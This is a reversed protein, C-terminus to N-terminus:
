HVGILHKRPCKNYNALRVTCKCISSQSLVVNRYICRRPGQTRRVMCLEPSVFKFLPLRYNANMGLIGSVDYRRFRRIFYKKAGRIYKEVVFFFSKMVALHMVTGWFVESAKYLCVAKPLPVMRWEVERRM